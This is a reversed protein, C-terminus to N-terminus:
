QKRTSTEEPKEPIPKVQCGAFPYKERAKRLVNYANMESVFSGFQYLREGQSNYIGYM